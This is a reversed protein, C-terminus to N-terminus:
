LGSEPTRVLIRQCEECRIVEDDAAARIVAIEANDVTLRCGGCARARLAAAGVGGKQERLRDYLAVLDAPLGEATPVREAAVSALEEDLAALKQDRASALAALRADTEALESTARDFEMQAAELREMVELEEDELTTIRRELSVLEQQMRELDKPNTILGQDMRDRDRTRRAKVQEVDADVKTQEVTLDDVLIRADRVRDDLAARQQKLEAIEALEPLHTRQHRLQDARADLEQVDLLKLQASPDAKLTPEKLSPVALPRHM